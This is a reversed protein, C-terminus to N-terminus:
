DCILQLTATGIGPVLRFHSSIPAANQANVHAAGIKRRKQECLLYHTIV